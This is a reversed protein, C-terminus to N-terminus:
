IFSVTRSTCRARPFPAMWRVLCWVILLDRFWAFVTTLPKYSVKQGSKWLASCKQFIILSHQMPSVCSLYLDLHGRPPCLVGLCFWFWVLPGERPSHQQIISCINFLFVGFVRFHHLAPDLYYEDFWQHGIQLNQGHTPTPLLFLLFLFSLLEAREKGLEAQATPVGPPWFLKTPEQSVFM